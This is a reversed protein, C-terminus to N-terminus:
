VQVELFDIEKFGFMHKRSMSSKLTQSQTAHHIGNFTLEEAVADEISDHFEYGGPARTISNIYKGVIASDDADIIQVILLNM